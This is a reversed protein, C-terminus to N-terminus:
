AHGVEEVVVEKTKVTAEAPVLALLRWLLGVAQVICTSFDQEIGTKANIDLYLQYSEYLKQPELSIEAEGLRFVIPAPKKAEVTAIVGGPAYEEKPTKLKPLGKAFKMAEELTAARKIAFMRDNGIGYRKALSEIGSSSDRIEQIEQSTLEKPKKAM